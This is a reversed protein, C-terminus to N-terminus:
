KSDLSIQETAMAGSTKKILYLPRQKVENFIRGVYEGVVGLFVLQIGSFLMLSVVITTWGNVDAGFITYGVTLFGGYLFAVLAMLLGVASAARLPLNTFATLGDFSLMLLQWFSFNSNGHARHQPTYPIALSTFGVWAYLGKMFRNREPLRLIAEVVPRGLLRFDGADPPVEFRHTANLLKYFYKSGIQKVVGEDARDARVAYVVDVGAQWHEVFQKILAPSHQLDADLMVVVDGSSAELGATLAAEKGFNRSLEICLLNPEAQWGAFVEPTPDRSGDDVFVIEWKINLAVLAERLVPLLLVLNQSENYCPVVCSISRLERVRGLKCSESSREINESELSLEGQM